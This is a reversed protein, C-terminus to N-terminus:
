RSRFDHRDPSRAAGAAVREDPTTGPRMVVLEEGGYRAFLDGPRSHRRLRNAVEHLVRDGGHHGYTDNVTMSREIDNLLAALPV